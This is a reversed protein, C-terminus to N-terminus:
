FIFGSSATALAITVFFLAMCYGAVKFYLAGGEAMGKLCGSVRKDAVPEVIAAALKYFLALCALKIMPVMCLLVLIILAAAGVCNKILIGSGLLLESIGSIANGVGPLMSAAKQAMGGAMRDGAPAVLSQVVNLGLVAICSLKMGWCIIEKCLETLNAFKEDEFFHNFLGLIVYIRILPVLVEAFFWQVMYIVIFATQYFAASSGAGASFAMAICFVPVLAKMFDLSQGLADEVVKGFVTFSQLLLVGLVCYVMLFCLESIYASRFAGAFNRLISFGVSLLVIEVLLKRNAKIEYFLADALWDLIRTFQFGGVGEELFESVLGSFSLREEGGLLGLGTLEDLESFDVEGLLEGIYDDEGGGEMDSGPGIGPAEIDRVSPSACAMAPSSAVFNCLVFVWFVAFRVAWACRAARSKKPARM